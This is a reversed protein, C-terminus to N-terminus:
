HKVLELQMVVQMSPFIPTEEVQAAQKPPNPLQVAELQKTWHMPLGLEEVQWAQAVWFHSGANSEQM